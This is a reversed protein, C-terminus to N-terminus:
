IITINKNNLYVLYGFLYEWAHTKKPNNNNNVVYGTELIDFEYDINKIKKLIDFYKNNFVFITGAVFFPINKCNLQKENTCYELFTSVYEPYNRKLINLVYIYNMTFNHNITWSSCGYMEIDNSTHNLFYPLKYYMPKLLQNRWRPDSKTHIKIYYNYYLDNEILYKLVILFPGIDMGKNKDCLIVKQDPFTDTLLYYDKKNNCTFYIDINQNNFFNPYDIFIDQFVKMNGVHMILAVGNDSKESLFTSKPLKKLNLSLISVVLIIILFLTEM